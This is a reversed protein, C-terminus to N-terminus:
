REQIGDKSVLKPNIFVQLHQQDQSVDLVILRKHVDVQTAALGIGVAARMTEAMDDVLKRIQADVEAVETARTHLRPDPYHLIPLLAM